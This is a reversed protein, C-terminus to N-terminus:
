AGKGTLVARAKDLEPGPERGRAEAIVRVVPETNSPRAHLWFDAGELRVGDQEDLRAGPFTAVLAGARAAFAARDLDLKTGAMRWDGLGAALASLPRNERGVLGLVCALAVLGDRTFNVAPLIVGGNGEGGITAGAAEMGATVAAEGVPTRLVPVSFEAAVQEVARTTSLNTVVPGPALPLIFRCALCLTWEESLPRGTEDVLGARDGDPDFGIGFDLGDRRVLGALGALHAPTPEPRRPFGQRLADRGTACNLTVPEAGLARCLAPGAEAAAGNVADVGVRLPRGPRPRFFEHGAVAAVHAAVAGPAPEVAGCRDWGVPPGPDFALPRFRGFDAPSLFRGDPGCLKLGNWEEPNHSATVVIGGALGRARVFHLVTPTPCVGLDLVDCGAAALGAVAAAAVMPGSVRPDRGVAVRGPGVFAGFARAVTTVLEPTLDLGVRGRLGSIGFAAPEM